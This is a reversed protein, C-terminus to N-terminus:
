CGVGVHSATAIYDHKSLEVVKRPSCAVCYFDCVEAVRKHDMGDALEEIRGCACGSRLIDVAKGQKGHNTRYLGADLIMRAIIAAKLRDMPECDPDMLPILNARKRHKTLRSRRTADRWKRFPTTATEKDTRTANINLPAIM